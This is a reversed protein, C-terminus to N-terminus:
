GGPVDEPSRMVIGMRCAGFGGSLLEIIDPPVFIDEWAGSKFWALQCM